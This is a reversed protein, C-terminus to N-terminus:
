VGRVEVPQEARRDQKMYLSTVCVYIYLPNSPCSMQSSCVSQSRVHRPRGPPDHAPWGGHITQASCVLLVRTLVCVYALLCIRDRSSLSRDFTYTHVCGGLLPQQLNEDFRARRCCYYVIIVVLLGGTVYALWPPLTGSSDGAAHATRATASLLALFLYPRWMRADTQQSPLRRGVTIRLSVLTRAGKCPLLSLSPLRSPSTAQACFAFGLWVLFLCVPHLSCTSGVVPGLRFLLATPRSLSLPNGYPKIKRLDLNKLLNHFSSM